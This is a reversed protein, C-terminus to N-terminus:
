PQAEGTIAYTRVGDVKDSTIVLGRKAKLAGSLAGRVSHAQWGTAEVLGALTAGQARRLLREVIALKSEKPQDGRDLLAPAPAAEVSEPIPEATPPKVAKRTAVPRRAQRKQALTQPREITLTKRM